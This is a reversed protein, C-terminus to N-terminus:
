INKKYSEIFSIFDAVSRDGSYDSVFIGNKYISFHPVGRLRPGYRFQKLDDIFQANGDSENINFRGIKVKSDSQYYNELEQMAPKVKTCWGCYPSFFFIFMIGQDYKNLLLGSFDKHTLSLSQNM